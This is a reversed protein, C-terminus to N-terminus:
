PPMFFTSIATTPVIILISNQASTMKARANALEDRAQRQISDVLIATQTEIPRLENGLRRQVTGWDGSKALNPHRTCSTDCEQSAWGHDVPASLKESM